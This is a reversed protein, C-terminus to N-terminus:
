RQFSELSPNLFGEIIRGKFLSLFFPRLIFNNRFNFFDMTKHKIAFARIFTFCIVNSIFFSLSFKNEIYGQWMKNKYYLWILRGERIKDEEQNNVDSSQCERMRIVAHKLISYRLTSFVIFVRAICTYILLM